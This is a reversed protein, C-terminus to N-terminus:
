MCICDKLINIYMYQKIMCPFLHIHHLCMCTFVYMYLFLSCLYPHMCMYVRFYIDHMSPYLMYITRFIHLRLSICPDLPLQSSVICTYICKLTSTDIRFNILCICTCSRDMCTTFLGIFVFVCFSLCNFLNICNGFYKCNWISLQENNAYISKFIM